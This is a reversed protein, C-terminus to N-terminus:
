KRGSIAAVVASSDLKIGPGMSTTLTLAKIYTGKAGSPKAKLVADILTTINKDLDETKFSVKGVAQHIIAQKDIRFEVKGGKSETVAKAVDATVTGSKPNPMLGRPGLIKAAKGLTAMMDPTAILIDFNLHGKEIEALLDKDGVVDAGAKRAAEQKAEPAIVAVRLTKGTGAPLVVSARVAQDAQRPDVGLNIHLEVTADFKAPSTTKALEIAEALSHLKTRDVQKALERYKKGHAKLPNPKTVVKPKDEAEDVSEKAEQRAEEAEAERVAKASRKGAKTAKPAEVEEGAEEAAEVNDVTAAEAAAEDQDLAEDTESAEVLEEVTDEDMIIEDKTKKTAM